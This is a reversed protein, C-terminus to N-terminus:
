CQYTSVRFNTIALGTERNECDSVSVRFFETEMVKHAVPPCCRRSTISIQEGLEVGDIVTQHSRSFLWVFFGM